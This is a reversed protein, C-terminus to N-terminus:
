LICQLGSVELALALQQAQLDDLGQKLNQESLKLKSIEDGAETEKLTSEKTLTAIQNQLAQRAEAEAAEYQDKEKASNSTTDKLSRM